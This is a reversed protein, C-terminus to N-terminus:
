RCAATLGTRRIFKNRPNPFIRQLQQSRESGTQKSTIIAYCVGSPTLRYYSAYPYISLYISLHLILRVSSKPLM